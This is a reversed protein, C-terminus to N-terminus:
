QDTVAGRPLLLRRFALDAETDHPAPLGVGVVQIDGAQRRAPSEQSKRSSASLTWRPKPRDPM